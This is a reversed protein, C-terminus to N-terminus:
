ELGEHVSAIAEVEVQYGHHLEAVPVIARAPRHEGLVQAYLRDFTPWHQVGVLYVRVQLLDHIEGGAARLVALLNDLAIMAQVEFPADHSHGGGPHIPLQGSIFLTNAHRLGQVYHGGPAAAQRTSITRDANGAM